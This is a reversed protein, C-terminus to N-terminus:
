QDTRSFFRATHNLFHRELYGVSTEPNRKFIRPFDFTMALTFGYFQPVSRAFVLALFPSWLSHPKKYIMWLGELESWSIKCAYSGRATMEVDEFRNNANKVPITQNLLFKPSHRTTFSFQM